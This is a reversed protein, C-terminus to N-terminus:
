EDNQLNDGRDGDEAERGVADGEVVEVGSVTGSEKTYTMSLVVKRERESSRKTCHM